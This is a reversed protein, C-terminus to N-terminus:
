AEYILEHEAQAGHSDNAQAGGAWYEWELTAGGGGGNGGQGWTPSLLSLGAGTQKREGSSADRRPHIRASSATCV